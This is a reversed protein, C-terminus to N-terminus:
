AAKEARPRARNPPLYVTVTTGVGVKSELAIRGGHAEVLGKVIPLGLGTSKETTVVDHQGQGFDEFVRAQDEPAIGVGTDAVGFSISAGAAPRVFATITGGQPTFKAANSLLNLVIQKMAREDANIFPLNRAIDTKLVFGGSDAKPEMLATEEAVVQGLDFDTEKLSLAGAEIKALDLIDNILALLHRGSKHILDAYEVHKEISEAFTRSAIIESFGLIANLPTRLEHSMNALFQSKARSAAEARYRATDSDSKANGLAIILDNKDSRLLLMDRVTTYIQLSLHGMYAIYALSLLALGLYIPGGQAFLPIALMAPSYTLFGTVALPRSASVLATNGALTAAFLLILLMHNLDDHPAWLVIPMANWAIGFVLFCAVFRANWKAYGKEPLEALFRHAFFGQPVMTIAVSAVWAILPPWAIWHHFMVAIIAALVPMTYSSPKMNRVAFALQELALKEDRGSPELTAADTKRRGPGAM